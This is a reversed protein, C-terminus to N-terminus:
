SPLGLLQAANALRDCAAWCMASSYTHVSQRIRLEWLGAHPQDHHLWARQGVRELSEFDELGAMRFLRHDFFAQVNSLVIQGYAYHQVQSYAENGVRVPGMGRYGPLKGATTEPLR